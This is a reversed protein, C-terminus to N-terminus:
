EPSSTDRFANDSVESVDDGGLARDLLDVPRWLGQRGTERAERLERGERRLEEFLAPRDAPSFRDAYDDLYMNIGWDEDTRSPVRIVSPMSFPREETATGVSSVLFNDDSEDYVDDDDDDDDDDHRVARSIAVPRVVGGGADLGNEMRETRINRYTSLEVENRSNDARVTAADRVKEGNVSLTSLVTELSKIAKDLKLSLFKVKILRAKVRENEILKPGHQQIGVSDVVKPVSVLLNNEEGEWTRLCAMMESLQENKASEVRELLKGRERGMVAHRSPLIIRIFSSNHCSQRCTPCVFTSAGPRLIKTHCGLCLLHGCNGVYAGRDESFESMCVPCSILDEDSSRVCDEVVEDVGVNGVGVDVSVDTQVKKDCMTVLRDGKSQRIVKLEYILPQKRGRKELKQARGKGQGKGKGKGKNAVKGREESEERLWDAPCALGEDVEGRPREKYKRKSTGEEMSSSCPKSM